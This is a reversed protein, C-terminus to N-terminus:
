FTSQLDWNSELTLKIESTEGLIAYFIFLYVGASSMLM